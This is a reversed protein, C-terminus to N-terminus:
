FFVGHDTDAAPTLRAHEIRVEMGTTAGSGQLLDGVYEIYRHLNQQAFRRATFGIVKEGKYAEPRRDLVALAATADQAYRPLFGFATAAEPSGSGDWGM